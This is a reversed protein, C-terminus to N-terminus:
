MAWMGPQNRFQKEHMFVGYRKADMAHDMFKVPEDLVNGNKDQRWKYSQREKNLNVNEARTHFRKRKCVDIGNRVSDKGKEVPHVNFGAAAIEEIRNPDESDAYIPVGRKAPPIIIGMRDILMTNTLNREYLAETLFYDLEDKVGTHILASPANFGFDLGYFEDDFTEPYVTELIYPQYIINTLIGWLGEAYIRHANPDQNKLDELLEIYEPDLFPNDRYTSHILTVKKAFSPNLLLRQNAWGQEDDPNLSLFIQNPDSEPARGSLRTQLILWDDWTFENAEELWIDNWETSKIKQPDDIAIFAIYAGNQPNTLVHNVRDHQVRSYLGYEWLLDVILKEATLRLAPGTKRSILIKRKPIEFFRQILRQAISHSKSSRAGGVNVVYRTRAAINRTFVNTVKVRLDQQSM